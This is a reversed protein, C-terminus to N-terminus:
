NLILGSKIRIFKVIQCKTPSIEDLKTELLKQLEYAQTSPNSKPDVCDWNENIIWQGFMKIGSEPLPRSIKTKYENSM